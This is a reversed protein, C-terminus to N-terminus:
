KTVGQLWSQYKPHELVVLRDLQEHTMPIQGILANRLSAFEAMIRAKLAAHDEDPYAELLAEAPPENSLELIPAALTAELEAIRARLADNEAALPDVFPVADVLKGATVADWHAEYADVPAADIPAPEVVDVVPEVVVPVVLAALDHALSVPDARTGAHAQGQYSGAVLWYGGNDEVRVNDWGSLIEKVQEIM